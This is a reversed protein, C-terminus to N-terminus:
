KGWNFWLWRYIPPNCDLTLRYPKWRFGGGSKMSTPICPRFKMIRRINQIGRRFGSGHGTSDSHPQQHPLESNQLIPEEHQEGLLNKM